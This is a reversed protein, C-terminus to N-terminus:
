DDQNVETIFNGRRGTLGTIIQTENLIIIDLKGGTGGHCPGIQSGSGRGYRFGLSDFSCTYVFTLVKLMM